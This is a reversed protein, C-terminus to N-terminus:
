IKFFINIKSHQNATYHKLSELLLIIQRYYFNVL